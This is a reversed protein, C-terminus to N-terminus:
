DIADNFVTRINRLLIAKSNVSLDKCFALFDKIYDSTIDEFMRSELRRDYARLWKITWDFASISKAKTMRSKYKEMRALFTREKEKQRAKEPNIACIIMDRIENASKGRTKGMDGMILMEREVFALKSRLCINLEKANPHDKVEHGDWQSASIKVELPIYSTKQNHCIAIKLPAEDKNHRTDLYIKATM